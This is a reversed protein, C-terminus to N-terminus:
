KGQVVKVTNVQTVKVTTVKLPFNTPKPSLRRNIHRRLLSPSKTFVTKAPRPRTVYPQPFATTVTRAATLPVLKSKTLVATPVVHRQPNPLSMKAYHQHKGKQAHNRAPTQAMKKEYYDCDKILYTLSKYVFCAKRNRSNGNAQPKPIDTKPNATPVNQSLDADSDDESDSVWDRIIPASPRHTHSLDKDPKTASLEVNFATHVTENFNPVDHFVLDLKPPMFTGTYPPPVAHYGERSQYRDYIPSGLLSEDTEFSFLEDCDFM